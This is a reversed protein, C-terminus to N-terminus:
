KSNRKGNKKEEKFLDNMIKIIEDYDTFPDNKITNEILYAIGYLHEYTNTNKCTCKVKCSGDKDDYKSELKIM